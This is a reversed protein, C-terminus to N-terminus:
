DKNSDCSQNREGQVCETGDQRSVKDLCDAQMFRLAAAAAEKPLLLGRMEEEDEEEGEDEDSVDESMLELDEEDLEVV